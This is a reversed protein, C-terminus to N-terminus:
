LQSQAQEDKKRRNALLIVVVFVLLLVVWVVIATVALPYKGRAPSTFLFMAAIVCLSFAPLGYFLSMKRRASLRFGCVRSVVDRAMRKRLQPLAPNRRELDESEDLVAVLLNHYVGVDVIWLLFIGTGGALAIMSTALRVDFGGYTGTPSKDFVYGIGAITALLWTSALGRYVSQMQNFHREYAGLEKYLEITDM